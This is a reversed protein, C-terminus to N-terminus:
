IAAHNEGQNPLHNKIWALRKPNTFKNVTNAYDWSQADFPYQIDLGADEFQQKMEEKLSVGSEHTFDKAVHWDWIASCLGCNAEFENPNNLFNSQIWDWLAQYFLGLEKSQTM